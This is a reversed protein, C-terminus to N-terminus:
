IKMRNAYTWLLLFFVGGIIEIALHIGGWIMLFKEM